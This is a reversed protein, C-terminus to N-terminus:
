SLNKELRRKALKLGWGNTQYIRYTPMDYISDEDHSLPRKLMSTDIQSQPIHFGILEGQVAFQNLSLTFEIEAVVDFSGIKFKARSDDILEAGFIEVLKKLLKKKRIPFYKEELLYFFLGLVVSGVGIAIIIKDWSAKRQGTLCLILLLTAFMVAARITYNIFSKM